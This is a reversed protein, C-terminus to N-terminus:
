RGLTIELKVFPDLERRITQSVKPLKQKIVLRGLDDDYRVEAVKEYTAEEVVKEVEDFTRYELKM